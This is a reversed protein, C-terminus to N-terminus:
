LKCNLSTQCEFVGELRVMTLELVDGEMLEKSISECWGGTGEEKWSWAVVLRGKISLSKGIRSKQLAHTQIICEEGQPLSGEHLLITKISLWM